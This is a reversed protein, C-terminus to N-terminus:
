ITVLVNATLWFRNEDHSKMIANCDLPFWAKCLNNYSKASKHKGLLELERLTKVVKLTSDVLKLNLHFFTVGGLSSLLNTPILM